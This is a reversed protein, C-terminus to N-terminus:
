SRPSRAHPRQPTYADSLWVEPLFLRKDLLAYGHRSAYAVCVGVQRHEVKGLTGCYQWAIGVSAYGKKVLGSADFM